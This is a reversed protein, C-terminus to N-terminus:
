IYTGACNCIRMNKDEVAVGGFQMARQSALVRKEKVLDFAKNIADVVENGKDSYKRLHMDRMRDITEDWTERRKKEKVYKAYKSTFNFDSMLELGDIEEM